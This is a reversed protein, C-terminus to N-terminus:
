KVAAIFYLQFPVLQMSYLLIRSLSFGAQLGELLLLEYKLLSVQKKGSSKNSLPSYASSPLQNINEGEESPPPQPNSYSCFM